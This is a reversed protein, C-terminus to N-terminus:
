TDVTKNIYRHTGGTHTGKSALLLSNSRRLWLLLCATLVRIHASPVLAPDEPFALSMKVASGHRWGPARERERERERLCM